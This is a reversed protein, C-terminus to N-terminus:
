KKKIPNAFFLEVRDYKEFNNQIRYQQSKFMSNNIISESSQSKFKSKFNAFTNGHVFSHLNGNKSYGSYCRNSILIDDFEFGELNHFINFTGYDQIGNLYKKDIVIENLHNLNEKKEEKLFKGFKDYFKLEISSNKKNFLLSLIDTYRFITQFNNDTRWCFADSVSSPRPINELSFILPRINLLNRIKRSIHNNLIKM